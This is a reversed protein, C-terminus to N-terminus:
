LLGLLVDFGLLAQSVPVGNELTPPSIKIQCTDAVPVVNIYDRNQDQYATISKVIDEFRPRQHADYEWCSMM